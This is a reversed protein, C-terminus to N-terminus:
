WKLNYTPVLASHLICFFFIRQFKYWTVKRLFFFFSNTLCLLHWWINVNLWTLFLSFKIKRLYLFNSREWGFYSEEQTLEFNNARSIEPSDNFICINRSLRIYQGNEWKGMKITWKTRPKRTVVHEIDHFVRRSPPLFKRWKILAGM